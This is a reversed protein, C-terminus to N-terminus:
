FFFLDNNDVVFIVACCSCCVCVCMYLILMVVFLRVQTDSFLFVTPEDKVGAKMMVKKLDEQWEHQGYNKTLEIQLCDYEM